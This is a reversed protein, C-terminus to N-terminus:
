LVIKQLVYLRRVVYDVYFNEIFTCQSLSFPFLFRFLFIVFVINFCLMYVYFDIRINSVNKGTHQEISRTLLRPVNHLTYCKDNGWPVNLLSHYLALTCRVCCFSFYECFSFLCSLFFFERTKKKTSKFDVHLEVFAYM